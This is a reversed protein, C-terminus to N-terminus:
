NASEIRHLEEHMRQSANALLLVIDIGSWHNVVTLIRRPPACSLLTVSWTEGAQARCDIVFSPM